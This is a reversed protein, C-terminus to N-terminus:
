NYNITSKRYYNFISKLIKLVTFKYDRSPDLAAKFLIYIQRIINLNM